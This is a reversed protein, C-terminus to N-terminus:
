VQVRILDMKEASIQDVSVQVVPQEDDPPSGTFLSGEEKGTSHSNTTATEEEYVDLEHEEEDTEDPNDGAVKSFEGASDKPPRIYLYTGVIVFLFGVARISSHQMDWEEGYLSSYAYYVITSLLWTGIPYLQQLFKRTLSSTMAAIRMSGTDRGYKSAMFLVFAVCLAIIVADTVSADTWDSAIEHNTAKDFPFYVTFVLAFGIFLMYVFAILAQSGVLFDSDLSKNPDDQQMLVEEATNRIAGILGSFLLILIGVLNADFEGTNQSIAHLLDETSIVILGALVICFGVWQLTTLIKRRYFRRILALFLLQSGNKTIDLIAAPVFILALYKGGNVFLDMISLISIKCLMKGNFLHFSSRSKKTFLALSCVFFSGATLLWVGIWDIDLANGARDHGPLLQYLLKGFFDNTSGSIMVYIVTIVFLRKIAPSQKISTFEHDGSTKGM